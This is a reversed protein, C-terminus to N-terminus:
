GLYTTPTHGVCTPIFRQSQRDGVNKCLYAGRMHPHVAVSVGTEGSLAAYAGRMHPHVTGRRYHSNAADPIGWAHPSSGTKTATPATQRSTHGVCTPIFRFDRGHVTSFLMYAGRMHPHVSTFSYLSPEASLTHGVCTPIFRICDRRATSIRATHGVCTPIFRM